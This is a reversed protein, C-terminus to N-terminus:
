LATRALHANLKLKWVPEGPGHAEAERKRKKATEAKETGIAELMNTLSADDTFGYRIVSRAVHRNGLYSNLFAEFWSRAKRGFEAHPLAQRLEEQWPVCTVRAVRQDRWRKYASAFEDHSFQRAVDIQM